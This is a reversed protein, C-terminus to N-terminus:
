EDFYGVITNAHNTGDSDDYNFLSWVDEESLQDYQSADVSINLLYGVALLRKLAGVDEETKIQLSTICRSVTNNNM